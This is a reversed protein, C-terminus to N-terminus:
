PIRFRKVVSWVALTVLSLGPVCSGIRVLGFRVYTVAHVSVNHPPNEEQTLPVTGSLETLRGRNLSASGGGGTAGRSPPSLKTGSPLQFPFLNIGISGSQSFSFM